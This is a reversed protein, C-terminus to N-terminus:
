GSQLVEAMAGVVDVRGDPRILYILDTSIVFEGEYEPHRLDPDNRVARIDTLGPAQEFERGPNPHTHFTALIM